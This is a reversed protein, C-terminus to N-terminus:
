FWGHDDHASAVIAPARQRRRSFTSVESAGLRDEQRKLIPGDRRLVCTHAGRPVSGGLASSCRRLEGRIRAKHALPPLSVRHTPGVQRHALQAAPQMIGLFRKGVSFVYDTRTRKRNRFEFLLLNGELIKPHVGGEEVGFDLM